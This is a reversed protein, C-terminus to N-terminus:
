DQKKLIYRRLAAVMRDKLVDPEIPRKPAGFAYDFISVTVDEVGNFKFKAGAECLKPQPIPHRRLIDKHGSGIYMKGSRLDVCVAWEISPKKANETLIDQGEELDVIVDFKEPIIELANPSLEENSMLSYRGNGLTVGWGLNTWIFFLAIGVEGRM